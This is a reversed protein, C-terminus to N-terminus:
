ADGDVRARKCGATDEGCKAPSWMGLEALVGQMGVGVVNPSAEPRALYNEMSGLLRAVKAHAEALGAKAKAFAEEADAVAKALAESTKSPTPRSPSAAAVSTTTVATQQHAVDKDQEEVPHQQLANRAAYVKSAEEAARLFATWLTGYLLHEGGLPLLASDVIARQLLLHREPTTAYPPAAALVQLRQKGSATRDATSATRDTSATATSSPPLFPLLVARHADELSSAHASPVRISQATESLLAPRRASVSVIFNELASNM